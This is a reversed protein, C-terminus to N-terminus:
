AMLVALIIVSWGATEYVTKEVLVFVLYPESSAVRGAVASLVTLVVKSIEM